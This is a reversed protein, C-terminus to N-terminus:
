LDRCALERESERPPVFCQSSGAWGAWKCILLLRRRSCFSSDSCSWVKPIKMRPVNDILQACLSAVINPTETGISFYVKFRSPDWQIVIICVGDQGSVGASSCTASQIPEVLFSRQSWERESKIGHHPSPRCHQCPLHLWLSVTSIPQKQKWTWLIWFSNASIVRSGGGFQLYIRKVCPCGSCQATALFGQM